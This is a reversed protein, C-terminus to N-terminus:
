TISHRQTDTDRGTQKKIEIDKDIYIDTQRDTQGGGGLTIINQM